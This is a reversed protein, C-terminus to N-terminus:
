RNQIRPHPEYFDKRFPQLTSMDWVPKRLAGGPQKGKLSNGRYGGADKPGNRRISRDMGPGSRSDRFSSRGLDSSRPPGGRGGRSMGIGGGRGGGFSNGTRGGRDGYSRREEGGGGVRGRGRIRRFHPFPKCHM